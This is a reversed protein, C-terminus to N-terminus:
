RFNKKLMLLNVTKLTVEQIFNLGNAGIVAQVDWM